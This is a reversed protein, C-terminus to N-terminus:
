PSLQPKKITQVSQHIKLMSKKSRISEPYKSTDSVKTYVKGNYKIGNKSSDTWQAGDLAYALSSSFLGLNHSSNYGHYLFSKSFRSNKSKQVEDLDAYSRIKDYKLGKTM